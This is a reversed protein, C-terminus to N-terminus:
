FELGLILISVVADTIGGKKLATMLDCQFEAYLAPDVAFDSPGSNFALPVRMGSKIGKKNKGVLGWYGMKERM